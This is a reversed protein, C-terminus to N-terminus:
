TVAFDLLSPFGFKQHLRYAASDSTNWPLAEERDRNLFFTLTVSGRGYPLTKKV